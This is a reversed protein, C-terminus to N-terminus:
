YKLNKLLNEIENFEEKIKEKRVERDKLVEKTYKNMKHNMDNINSSVTRTVEKLKQKGLVIVKEQTALIVSHKEDINENNTKELQRKLLRDMINLAMAGAIGSVLGGLFISLLNALSGIGPISVQFGPILALGKEIVEGIFITGVAAAGGIILKGIELNRIAPSKGKNAPNRLYKVAEKLSKWGQKLLVGIRQITSVIPGFITSLVTSIVIKGSNGIHQKLNQIFQVFAEKFTALFSKISKESSKFWKILEKVVRRIFDGILSYIIAKGVSKGLRMAEEKQTKRGEQILREEGKKREKELYEKSKKDAKEWHKTKDKDSMENSSNDSKRNNREATTYGQLNNPNNIKEALEESTNSMQLSPDKYIEASPTVHERQAAKPNNSGDALKTKTSIQQGTYIDTVTDIGEKNLVGARKLVKNMGNIGKDVYEDRFESHPKNKFRDYNQELKDRSIYNHKAIKGKEFNEPTQIHVENRLDLTMGGNEKIFEQAVEAGISINIQESVVDMIVKSLNEPNSLKNGEKKITELDSLSIELEKELEELQETEVFNLTIDEYEQENYIILEDAFKDDEDFVIDKKM